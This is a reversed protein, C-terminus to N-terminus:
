LAGESLATFSLTPDSGDAASSVVVIPTPVTSMIERIAGIGDLKPMRVDMTIFDPRLQRAMKVAELGDKAHGIVQIEPDREVLMKIVEFSTQMDDVVLIRLV